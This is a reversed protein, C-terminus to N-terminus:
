NLPFNLESLRKASSTCVSELLRQYHRLTRHVTGSELRDPNYQVRGMLHGPRDIFAIYLDWPSGSGEVDMSTVTWELDLSPTAPQLSMAVRFFPNCGCNLRPKLKQALFEIPVDDNSLAELTLRQAQLLLDRFTRASTLDFRLAVPNLFYGLLKTVESRKRGAPSLTGVVVEDQQTYCHLLAVFTALLTTFLTVAERRSLDKVAKSLSEPVVFPRIAGRATQQPASLPGIPWRLTPIEGSLQKRWYALQNDLEEGQLWQRQWVAYDAFQIAPTPLLAPYGSIYSSYLAALDSPFVQYVSVGDVISLHAILYLRHEFRGLTVLRARLLPGNTLDFRQRVAEGIIQRAELEQRDAPLGQLDIVPLPIGESVPHVIQVMRGNRTEYSTRWIEHRRVIETLSRELVRVDLPGCMRLTICENYLPTLGPESTERLLLQEQSLSLPAPGDSHRPTIAHLLPFGPTRDGHVYSELLKRKAESLISGSTM